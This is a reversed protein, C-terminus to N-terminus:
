ASPPLVRAPFPQTGPRTQGTGLLGGFTAGWCYLNANVTLGCSHDALALVSFRLDGAVPQPTAFRGGAGGTGLEGGTNNGWCYAAGEMTLGCAQRTGTEISRFLLGGSVPVPAKSGAFTGNGLVGLPPNPDGNNRVAGWCYGKHDVTVGCTFANGASISAWRLGGDVMLPTASNLCSDSIACSTDRAGVGLSGYGGGWCYAEADVSIACTQTTGASISTFRLSTAVPQPTGTQGSWCYAVGESTLLCANGYGTAVVRVPTAMAVRVPSASSKITGEGLSKEGWCYAESAATVGCHFGGGSAVASFAPAPGKIRTPLPGLTCGPDTCGEVLSLGWCYAIGGEAIACSNYTGADFAIWKVQGPVDPAIRPGTLPDSCAVAVLLMASLAAVLCDRM